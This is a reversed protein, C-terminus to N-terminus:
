NTYVNIQLYDYFGPYNQQCYGNWFSNFDYININYPAAYQQWGQWMNNWYSLNQPQQAFYGYVPGFQQPMQPNPVPYNPSPPPLNLPPQPYNGYTGNGYPGTGYGYPNSSVASFGDNKGCGVILLVIALSMLKRM